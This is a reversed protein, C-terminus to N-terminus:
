QTIIVNFPYRIRDTLIRTVPSGIQIGGVEFFDFAQVPGKLDDPSVSRISEVIGPHSDPLMKLIKDPANEKLIEYIADELKKQSARIEKIKSFDFQGMSEQAKSNLENWEQFMEKLNQESSM